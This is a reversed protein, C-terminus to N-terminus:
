HTIKVYQVFPRDLMGCYSPLRRMVMSDMVTRTGNAFGVAGAETMLGLEAVAVGELNRTAAGRIFVSAM